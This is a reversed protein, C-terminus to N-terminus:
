HQRVLRLRTSGILLEAGEDLRVPGNIRVYVGNLSGLDALYFSEGDHTIRAHQESAFRDGELRVTCEDAQGVTVEAATLSFEKGKERVGVVILRALPRPAVPAPEESPLTAGESSGMPEGGETLPSAARVREAESADVATAVDKPHGAEVAVLATPEAGPQSAGCGTCFRAEEKLATGCRACVLM